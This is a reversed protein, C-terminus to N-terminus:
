DKLKVQNPKSFAQKNVKVESTTDQEKVGRSNVDYALIWCTM